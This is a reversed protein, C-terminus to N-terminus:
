SCPSFGSIYTMLTERLLLLDSIKAVKVPVSNFSEAGSELLIGVSGSYLDKPSYSQVVFNAGLTFLKYFSQYPPVEMSSLRHSSGM